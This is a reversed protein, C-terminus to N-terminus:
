ALNVTNTFKTGEVCEEAIVEFKKNTSYDITAIVMGEPNAKVLYPTPSVHLPATQGPELPRLTTALGVVELDVLYICYYQLQRDLTM